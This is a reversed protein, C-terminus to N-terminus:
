FSGDKPIPFKKNLQKVEGRIKVLFKDREIEKKFENLVSIREERTQPILRSGLHSLVQDLWDSIQDMQEEKM